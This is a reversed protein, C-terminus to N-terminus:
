PRLSDPPPSWSALASRWWEPALLPNFVQLALICNTHLSLQWTGASGDFCVHPVLSFEGKCLHRSTSQQAHQQQLLHVPGPRCRKHQAILTLAHRVCGHLKSIGCGDYRHCTLPSLPRASHLQLTAPQECLPLSTVHARSAQTCGSPAAPHWCGGCVAALTISRGVTGYSAVHTRRTAATDTDGAAAEREKGPNTSDKLMETAAASIMYSACCCRM